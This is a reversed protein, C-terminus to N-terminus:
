MFYEMDPNLFGLSYIQPLIEEKACGRLSDYLHKM